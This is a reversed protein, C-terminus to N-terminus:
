DDELTCWKPIHPVTSTILKEFENKDFDAEIVRGSHIKKDKIRRLVRCCTFIIILWVDGYEYIFEYGKHIYRCNECRDISVKKM